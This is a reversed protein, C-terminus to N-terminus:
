KGHGSKRKLSNTSPFPDLLMSQTKCIRVRLEEWPPSPFLTKVVRLPSPMSGSHKHLRCRLVSGGDMVELETAKRLNEFSRRGKDTDEVLALSGDRFGQLAPGLHASSPGHLDEEPFTIEYETWTVSADLSPTNLPIPFGALVSFGEPLVRNLSDLLDQGSLPRSAWIDMYEALSEVGVPLAPSFSV